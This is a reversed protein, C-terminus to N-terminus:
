AKKPTLIQITSVALALFFYYLQAGQVSFFLSEFLNIILFGGTGAVLGRILLDEFSRDFGAFIKRSALFFFQGLFLFYLAATILGSEAALQLYSNHAYYRKINEVYFVEGEKTVLKERDTTYRDSEVVYTNIGVGTIPHAKIMNLARSWLRFRESVSQERGGQGKHLYVDSPLILIAFVGITLLSLLILFARKFFLTFLILAGTFALWGSRSHTAVLSLTGAAALFIFFLRKLRRIGKEGAAAGYLFIMYILYFAYQSPFEFSSSIRLFQNVTRVPRHRLFDFGAFYQVIGSALIMLFGLSMWGVFKKLRESTDLVQLTLFFFGLRQLVKTVGRISLAVHQTELFSLSLSLVFLALIWNLPTRPFLIQRKSICELLWGIATAVIFINALAKSFPVTVAFGLLTWFQFDRLRAFFLNFLM